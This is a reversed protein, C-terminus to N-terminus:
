IYDYNFKRIDVLGTNLIMDVDITGLSIYKEFENFQNFEASNRQNFMEETCSKDRSIFREKRIHKSCYLYIVHIEYQDKYKRCLKYYGIPDIVYINIRDKFICDENTFYMYGNIETYALKPTDAFKKNYEEETIFNHERGDVESDRKPRTTYSTILHYRPKISIDKAFTDKGSATQGIICLIKTTGM